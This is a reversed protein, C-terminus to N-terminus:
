RKGKVSALVILCFICTVLQCLTTINQVYWTIATVHEVKVHSVGLFFFFPLAPLHPQGLEFKVFIEAFLLFLTTVGISIWMTILVFQDSLGLCFMEINQCTLLTREGIFYPYNVAFASRFIMHFSIHLLLINIFARMSYYTIITCLLSFPGLVNRLFIASFCFWSYLTCTSSFHM